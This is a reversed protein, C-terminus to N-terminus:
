ANAIRIAPPRERRQLLATLRTCCPNDDHLLKSIQEKLPFISRKILRYNRRHHQIDKIGPLQDDDSSLFQEEMDELSDEM